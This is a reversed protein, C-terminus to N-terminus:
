QLVKLIAFLEARPVSQEHGPLPGFAQGRLSAGAMVAFGWGARASEPWFPLIRGSGDTFVTGTVDLPGLARLEYGWSEIM